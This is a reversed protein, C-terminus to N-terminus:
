NFVWLGALNSANCAGSPIQVAGVSGGSTQAAFAKFAASSKEVVPETGDCQPDNWLAEPPDVTNDTGIQVCTLSTSRSGAEHCTAVTVTNTDVDCNFAGHVSNSFNVRVSESILECNYTGGSPTIQSGSPVSTGAAFAATSMTLGAAMLGLVIKKM